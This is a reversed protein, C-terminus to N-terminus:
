DAPVAKLLEKPRCMKGNRIVYAIRRVNRIDALPDADLLVIDALKGAEISGLDKDQRLARANNVTAAQLAAAPTLGSEVLLELEQLLSFGPPCYPEPTDTGALLTVGGRHLMGTLEKYKAFERARPERNGANFGRSARYSTWNRLLRAPVVANDPHEHVEPLDCLYLMNRFVTLTPCLMVRKTAMQQVLSQAAPNNLDMRPKVAPDDTPFASYWASWIHELCDIGDAMADQASISGLHATVPLGHRHAESIVKRAVERKVRVYLKVTAVGWGAMDDIFAPVENPDTISRSVDPHYAPAGDILPTCLFIGPCLTPHEDAYRALLKQVVIADGADRVSTVGAALFLPLIEDGTMHCANLIHMLHVHGDILGPILYKGHADIVKADRPIPLSEGASQVAAIRNGRIAIVRDRLSVGNVADFVTGGQIVLSPSLAASAAVATCFLCTLGPLSM